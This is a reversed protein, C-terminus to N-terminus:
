PRVELLVTESATAGSPDTCTASFNVDVGGGAASAQGAGISCGQAGGSALFQSITGQVAQEFTGLQSIPFIGLPRCPLSITGSICITVNYNGPPLTPTGTSPVCGGQGCVSGATCCFLPNGCAVPRDSPCPDMCSGQGCISGSACCYGGCAVPLQASCCGAANCTDGSPCCLGNQCATPFGAPCGSAPPNAVCTSTGHDCYPTGLPCFITGCAETTPPKPRKLPPLQPCKVAPAEMICQGQNCQQGGSCPNLQNCPRACEADAPNGLCSYLMEKLCRKFLCGKVFVTRCRDRYFPCSTYCMVRHAHNQRRVTQRLSAPAISATTTLLLVLAVLLKKM